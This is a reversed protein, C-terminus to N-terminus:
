DGDPPALRTFPSQTVKAPPTMFRLGTKCRGEARIDILSAMGCFRAKNAPCVTV